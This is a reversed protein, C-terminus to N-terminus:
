TKTVDKKERGKEMKKFKDDFGRSNDEKEQVRLILM